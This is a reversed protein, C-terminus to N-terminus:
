QGVFAKCSLEGYSCGQPFIDNSRYDFTLEEGRQVAREAFIGIRETGGVSWKDARCNPDCSHNIFRALNGKKSADIYWGAKLEMIYFHKELEYEEMRAALGREDIIEGVYEIIFQCPDIPAVACLGYGKQGTQIV